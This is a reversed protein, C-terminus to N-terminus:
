ALQKLGVLSLIVKRRQYGSPIDATMSMYFVFSSYKPRLSVRLEIAM